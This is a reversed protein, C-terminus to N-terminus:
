SITVCYSSCVPFLEVADDLLFLTILSTNNLSLFLRSKRNVATILSYFRTLNFPQRTSDKHVVFALFSQALVTM